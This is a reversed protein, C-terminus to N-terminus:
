RDRNTQRDTQRDTPRDRDTQRDSQRMDIHRQAVGGIERRQAQVERERVCVCKAPETGRERFCRYKGGESLVGTKGIKNLFFFFIYIYIYIYM